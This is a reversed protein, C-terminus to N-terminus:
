KYVILFTLSFSISIERCKCLYGQMLSFTRLFTLTWIDNFYAEGMFFRIGYVHGGKSSHKPYDHTSITFTAYRINNLVDVCFLITLVTPLVNILPALNHNYETLTYFLHVGTM